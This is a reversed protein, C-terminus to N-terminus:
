HVTRVRLVVMVGRVWIVLTVVIVLIVLDGLDVWSVRTVM